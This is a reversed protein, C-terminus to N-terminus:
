TSGPDIERLIRRVHLKPMSIGKTKFHGIVMIVGTHPQSNVIDRMVSMQETDNIITHRIM